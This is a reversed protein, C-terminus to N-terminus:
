KFGGGDETATKRDHCSKCLPQLNEFTNQGGQSLPRIHDVVEAAKGCRRCIPDSRLVM